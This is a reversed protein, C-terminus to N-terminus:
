PYLQKGTDEEIIVAKVPCSEAAEFLLKDNISNNDIVIAKNEKDLKFVEPAVAVCNGLGICLERDIKVKM